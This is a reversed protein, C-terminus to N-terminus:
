GLHICDMTIRIRRHSTTSIRTKAHSAPFFEPKKYVVYLQLAERYIAVQYCNIAAVSSLEVYM